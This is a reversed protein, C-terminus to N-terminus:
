SFVTIFIMGLQGFVIKCKNYIANAFGNTIAALKTRSHSGSAWSVDVLTPLIGPQAIGIQINTPISMAPINLPICNPMALVDALVVYASKLRMSVM